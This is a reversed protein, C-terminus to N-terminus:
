VERRNRNGATGTVSLRGDFGCEPSIISSFREDGVPVNILGIGAIIYTAVFTFESCRTLQEFSSYGFCYRLYIYARFKNPRGRDIWSHRLTITCYVSPFISSAGVFGRVGIPFEASHTLTGPCIIASAPWVHLASFAVPRRQGTALNHLRKRAVDGRGKNDFVAIWAPDM